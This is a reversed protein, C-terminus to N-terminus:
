GRMVRALHGANWREFVRNRAATWQADINILFAREIAAAWAEPSDDHATVAVIDLEEGLLTRVAPSAPVVPILDAALYELVKYFAKRLSWQDQAQPALGVRATALARQQRDMSWIREVVRDCDSDRRSGIVVLEIEIPMLQLAPYVISKVNKLTTPSGLWLIGHREGPHLAGITPAPGPFVVVDRAGLRRFDEALVTNSVTVCDCLPLLRALRQSTRRAGVPDSDDGLQIADDCEFVLRTSLSAIIRCFWVPPVVKQVITVGPRMVITKALFRVPWSRRTATIREIEWGESIMTALPAGIRVRSSAVSDDGLTLALVRQNDNRM